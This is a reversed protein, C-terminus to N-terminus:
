EWGLLRVVQNQDTLQTLNNGDIDVVWLRGFNNQEAVFAIRGGDPSWTPSNVNEMENTLVIREQGTEIDILHINGVPLSDMDNGQGLGIFAIARSDPSWSYDSTSSVLNYREGNAVNIAVLGDGIVAIKSGDPSWSLNEFYGDVTDLRQAGSGDIYSLWLESPTVFDAKLSYAVRQGTPSVAGGTINPAPFQALITVHEGTDSNVLWLGTDLYNDDARMLIHQNDPHWDLFIGTPDLDQRFLGEIKASFPYAIRLQKWGTEIAVRSGNPAPHIADLTPVDIMMHEAVIKPETGILKGQEDILLSLVDVSIPEALAESEDITASTALYRISGSSDAAPALLPMATVTPGPVITPTPPLPVTPAPSPTPFVYVKGPELVMVGGDPPPTNIVVEEAPHIPAPTPLPSDAAAQAPARLAAATRKGEGAPRIGLLRPLMLLLGLVLLLALALTVKSPVRM